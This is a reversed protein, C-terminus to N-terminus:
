MAPSSVPARPRRSSSAISPRSSPTAVGGGLASVDDWAQQIGVRQQAPTMTATVSYPPCSVDVYWPACDRTVVFPDIPTGTETVRIEDGSAKEVLRSVDKTIPTM